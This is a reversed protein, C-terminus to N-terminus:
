YKKLTETFHDVIELFYNLLEKDEIRTHLKDRKFMEYNFTNMDVKGDYTVKNKTELRFEYEMTRICLKYTQDPALSNSITYERGKGGFCKPLFADIQGNDDSIQCEGLHLLVRYWDITNTVEDNVFGIAPVGAGRFMLATCGQGEDFFYHQDSFISVGHDSYLNVIYEDDNYNDEIYTFLSKLSRDLNKLAQHYEEVAIRSPAMFISKANSGYKKSLREELTLKAQAGVSLHHDEYYPHIDAFHLSLFHDTDYAELHQIAREVGIYARPISDLVVREYGRHLQNYVSENSELINVCYYGKDRFYEAVTKIDKSLRINARQHFLQTKGQYRGTQISATSPFTWEAPTYNNTFIVGQKFFKLINPTYKFNTQQMEGFSLADVFLNLILKKRKKSHELSIPNGIAFNQLSSVKTKEEINFYNYEFRGLKTSQLKGNIEFLVDQNEDFAAIPVIYPKDKQALTITNTVKSKVLDFTVCLYGLNKKKLAEMIRSEVNYLGYENYLGIFHTNYIDDNWLYRGYLIETIKELGTDDIKQVTYQWPAMRADSEAKSVTDLLLEDYQTSIEKAKKACRLIEESFNLKGNIVPVIKLMLLYIYIAGIYDGNRELCEALFINLKLNLRRKEISKRAFIEAQTYDGKNFYFKGLFFYYNECNPRLTHYLNIDDLIASGVSGNALNQEINEFLKNAKKNIKEKKLDLVVEKIDLKDELISKKYFENKINIENKDLFYDKEIDYIRILQNTIPFLLFLINEFEELNYGKSEIVRKNIEYNKKLVQENPKYVIEYLMKFISEEHKNNYADMLCDIAKVYLIEDFRKECIRLLNIGVEYLSEPSKNNSQLYKEVLLIISETDKEILQKGFLM